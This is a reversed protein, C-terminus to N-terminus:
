LSKLIWTSSWGGSQREKRSAQIGHDGKEVGCLWLTM